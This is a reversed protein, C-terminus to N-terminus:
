KREYHRYVFSNGSRVSFGQWGHGSWFSFRNRPYVQEVHIGPYQIHNSFMGDTSYTGTATTTIDVYSVQGGEIKKVRVTSLPETSVWDEHEVRYERDNFKVLNNTDFGPAVTALVEDAIAPMTAGPGTVAIISATLSGLVIGIMVHRTPLNMTETGIQHTM